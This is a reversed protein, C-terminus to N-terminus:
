TVDMRGTKMAVNLLPVEEQSLLFSHDGCCLVRQARAVSPSWFGPLKKEGIHEVWTASKESLKSLGSSLKDNCIMVGMHVLCLLIQIVM